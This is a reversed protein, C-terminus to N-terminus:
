WDLEQKLKEYQLWIEHAPTIKEKIEDSSLEREGRFFEVVSDYDVIDLVQIEDRFHVICVVILTAVMVVTLLVGCGTKSSKTESMKQTKNAYHRKHNM